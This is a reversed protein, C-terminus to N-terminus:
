AHPHRGPTVSPSTDCICSPPMAAGAGRAHGAAGRAHGDLAGDLYQQFVATNRVGVWRGDARRPPPPPPASRGMRLTAHSDLHVLPTTRSTM